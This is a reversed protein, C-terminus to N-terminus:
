APTLELYDKTVNLHELHDRCVWDLLVGPPDPNKRFSSVARRYQVDTTASRRIRPLSTTLGALNAEGLESRFATLGGESNLAFFFYDGSEVMMSLVVRVLPNNPTNGDNGAGTFSYVPAFAAGNTNLRFLSGYGNAGGNATAGYFLGNMWALQRPNAGDPTNTFNHLTAFGQARAPLAVGLLGVTGMALLIHKLKM